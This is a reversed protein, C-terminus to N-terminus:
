VKVAFARVEFIGGFGVNGAVGWQPAKTQFIKTSKSFQGSGPSM